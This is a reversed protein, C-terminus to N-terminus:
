RRLANPEAAGTPQPAGGGVTRAPDPARGESLRSLAACFAPLPLGYFAATERVLQQRRWWCAVCQGIPDWYRGNEAFRPDGWVPHGAPAQRLVHGAITTRNLRARAPLADHRPSRAVRLCDEFEHFPGSGDWAVLGDVEKIDPNQLAQRPGADVPPVIPDAHPYPTRDM